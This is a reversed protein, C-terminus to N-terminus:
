GPQVQAKKMIRRLDGGAILTLMMALFDSGTKVAFDGIESGASLIGESTLLNLALCLGVALLNLIMRVPSGTIKTLRIGWVLICFFITICSTYRFLSQPEARFNETELRIAAWLCVTIMLLDGNDPLEQKKLILWLCVCLFFVVAAATEIRTPRYFGDVSLWRILPLPETVPAGNGAGSEQFAKLVALAPLLGFGAGNMVQGAFVPQGSRKKRGRAWLAMFLILVLFSVFGYVGAVTVSVGLVEFLEESM